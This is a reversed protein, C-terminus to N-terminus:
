RTLQRAMAELTNARWADLYDRYRLSPTEARAAKFASNIERMGGTDQLRKFEANVADAAAFARDVVVAHPTIGIHLDNALQRLQRAVAAQDGRCRQALAALRDLDGPLCVISICGASAETDVTERVVIEGDAGIEIAAIGASRLYRDALAHKSM